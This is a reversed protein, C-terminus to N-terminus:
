RFTKEVVLCPPFAGPDTEMKGGPGVLDEIRNMEKDLQGEMEDFVDM